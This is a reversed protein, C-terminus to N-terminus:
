HMSDRDVSKVFAMHDPLLMIGGAPTCVELEDYANTHDTKM